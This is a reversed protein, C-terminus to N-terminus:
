DFSQSQRDQRLLAQRSMHAKMKTIVFEPVLFGKVDDKKIGLNDKYDPHSTALLRIDDALMLFAKGGTLPMHGNDFLWMKDDQDGLYKFLQPHRIYLRGRASAFGLIKNAKVGMIVETENSIRSSDWSPYNFNDKFKPERDGWRGKKKKIIVRSAPTWLKEPKADRTESKSGDKNGVKFLSKAEDLSRRLIHNIHDETVPEKTNDGVNYAAMTFMDQYSQLVREIEANLSPQLAARVLELAKSPSSDKNGRTRNLFGSTNKLLHKRKPFNRVTMNFPNAALRVPEVGSLSERKRKTIRHATPTEKYSRHFPTKQVDGARALAVAKRTMDDNAPPRHQGVDLSSPRQHSADMSSLPTSIVPVM